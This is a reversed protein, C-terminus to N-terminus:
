VCHGAGLSGQREAWRNFHRQDAGLLASRVRGVQTCSELFSSIQM